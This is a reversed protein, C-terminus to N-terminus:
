PTPNNDDPVHAASARARAWTTSMEHRPARGLSGWPPSAPPHRPGASPPATPGDTMRGACSQRNALTM